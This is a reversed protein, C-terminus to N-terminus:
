GASKAATEAKTKSTTRTHTMGGDMAAGTEFCGTGPATSCCM